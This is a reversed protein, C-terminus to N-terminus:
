GISGTRGVVRDILGYDVAEAPSLWFEQRTDAQIKTIPQGTHAALLEDIQSQILQLERAQTRM